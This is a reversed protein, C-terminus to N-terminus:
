NQATNRYQINIAIQNALLRSKSINQIKRFIANVLGDKEM